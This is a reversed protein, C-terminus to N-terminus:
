RGFRPVDDQACRLIESAGCPNKWVEGPPRRRPIVPGYRHQEKSNLLFLCAQFEGLIHSVLSYSGDFLLDDHSLYERMTLFTYTSHCIWNTFPHEQPFRRLLHFFLGIDPTIHLPKFTFFPQMKRCGALQPCPRHVFKLIEPSRQPVIKM